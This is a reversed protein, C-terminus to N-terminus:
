WENRPNIAKFKTTSLIMAFLILWLRETAMKAVSLWNLALVITIMFLLAFIRDEHRKGFTYKIGIVIEIITALLGLVGNTVLTSLYANDISYHLSNTYRFSGYAFENIAQGTGFLVHGKILGLSISYLALRYTFPNSNNFEGARALANESFVGLLVNFIFTVGSYLSPALFYSGILVVALIGSGIVIAKLLHQKGLMKMFIALCLVFILIPARSITTLLTVILILLKYLYNKDKKQDYYYLAILANVSLYIAFPIAHGFSAESRAFIGRMQLDPSVETGNGNYIFSFLNTKTLFEFIGFFCMIMSVNLLVHLSEEIREKSIHYDILPIMILVYELILNLVETNNGHYLQGPLRILLIFCVITFLRKNLKLGRSKLSTMMYILFYLFAVIKYSPVGAIRFYNPLVPYLAIFILTAYRRLSLNM